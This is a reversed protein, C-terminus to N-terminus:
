LEFLIPPYRLPNNEWRRFVFDPPNLIGPEHAKAIGVPFGGIVRGVSRVITKIDQRHQQFCLVKDAECDPGKVAFRHLIFPHGKEWFFDVASVHHDGTLVPFVYEDHRRVIDMEPVFGFDQLPRFIRPLEDLDAVTARGNFGLRAPDQQGM